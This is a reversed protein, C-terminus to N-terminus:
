RKSNMQSIIKNILNLGEKTKHADIKKLNVIKKWDLFDLQKRTLMPYKDVFDIISKTDRLIFRNVSRSKICDSLDYFNYKPKIYGGSFFDKISLLVAIDHNNQAIELSSDCGQYLKGRSQKQSVYCYFMGEGNLFTQIWHPSIEIFKNETSNILYNFCIKYKEEFPRNKNMKSAIELIKDIGESTLHKKDQMMLAIIKWDKFNLFKSTLCPYKDFHPIIITLIDSLSNVHFKKTDSQRNDIVVNGCKFYDKIEYLIGASHSKQTVKFELKLTKGILSTKKNSISLFFGGESDVFGTIQWPELKINLRPKTYDRTTDNLNIIKKFNKNKM